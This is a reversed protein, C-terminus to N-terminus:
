GSSFFGVSEVGNEFYTKKFEKEMEDFARKWSVAKFEGKKDFEGKENVRLLPSVLRDEGYMISSNYYGKVCLLGKNVPNKEDARLAVIKGDKVALM